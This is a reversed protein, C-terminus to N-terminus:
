SVKISLEINITKNAACMLYNYKNFKKEIKFLYHLWIILFMYIYLMKYIM